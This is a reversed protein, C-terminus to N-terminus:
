YTCSCCPKNGVVGGGTFISCPEERVLAGGAGAVVDLKLCTVVDQVLAGEVVAVVSHPVDEAV